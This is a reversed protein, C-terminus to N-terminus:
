KIKKENKIVVPGATVRLRGFSESPGPGTERTNRMKGRGKKEVTCYEERNNKAFKVV